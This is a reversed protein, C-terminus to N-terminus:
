DTSEELNLAAELSKVIDSMSPRQYGTNMLCKSAIDIFLRFCEPSMNSRLNSDIFGTHNNKLCTKIWQALNVQDVDLWRASEEPTCLLEFLVLGFSFIYSKENDSHIYDSDLFGWNGRAITPVANADKKKSLPFDSVKAIWNEDLFINSSKLNRHLDTQKVTTQLHSLGVASGISIKLRQKWPIPDKNSDCLHDHLVGNVPYDYLLIMDSEDKCYGLLSVVNAHKLSPGIEIKSKLERAMCLRSEATSSRRVAVTKQAGDIHGKYVSDSVSFGIIFSNHFNSTAKRIEQVSFECLGDQLQVLSAKGKSPSRPVHGFPNWWWRSSTGSKSNNDKKTIRPVDGEKTRQATGSAEPSANHEIDGNFPNIVLDDFSVVGDSQDSYSRDVNMGEDEEQETPSPSQQLALAIELSVMVDSMSPREHPRNHICRGATGVFLKLCAPSIQGILNREILQDVKGKKICYRAWAALSHQEEELRIDVAPRGSLMEFLVVGFAYVDSKRTLKKTLFYEPDLYGFTGKVNTSFHSISENAPGMKSLGFDSIKAVWNEDLLINSSKVDRHIVRHRSTHLVYLGRAAGVSIKLRQEWSLPTNATGARGIKYLHDAVTGRPMYEYVLIMEQDNNCYGILPVLHEHRLKSLMKIETWFETEGQRSESKLRKIAVVTKGDDIIGKYVRGYGGSGILFKPNFDNTSLRIERLSFQRCFSGSGSSKMTRTSTNAESLRRLHYIAINLLILTVTIATGAANKRDFPPIKQNKPKYSRMYVLTMTNPNALNNDPNSLKFVELGNLIGDTQKGSLALNPHLSINLFHHQEMRGGDMLVVYDRYVAAGQKGGWQIVDVDAEAIQNNIVISFMRGGNSTIGLELECFHLRVLYRFGLDVPIMWTLNDRKMDDDPPVSRATQYVKSPATHSPAYSYTIPIIKKLSVGQTTLLFKLDEDWERFMSQDETSQISNGGVNLRQVMELATSNDIYFRYKKGVVLPGLEGDQTFYLGTPMSVIEIGNVFAYTDGSSGTRSSPSFTVSLEQNDEINLCFEKTFYNVGSAAAAISASFNSLLTYHGAKVTFFDISNKFSKYSAPHFHLRIFKQGSTLHFTYTFEQHSIRATSYPVSDVLPTQNRIRSKTSKGSLKLFKPEATDGIWLRGNKATSNGSVGSSIAVNEVLTNKHLNYSAITSLASFFYLLIAISLRSLPM